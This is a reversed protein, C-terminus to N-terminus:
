ICFIHKNVQAKILICIHHSTISSGYLSASQDIKEVVVLHLTAVIAALASSFDATQSYKVQLCAALANPAFCSWCRCM